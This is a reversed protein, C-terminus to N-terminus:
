TDAGNDWSHSPAEFTDSLPDIHSNAYRSNHSTSDPLRRLPRPESERLVHSVVFASGPVLWILVTQAVKQSSDFANSRWLRGTVRFNWTALTLVGIAIVAEFSIM